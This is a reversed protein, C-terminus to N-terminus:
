GKHVTQSSELVNEGTRPRGEPRSFIAGVDSALERAGASGHRSRTVGWYRFGTRQADNISAKFGDYLVRRWQRGFHDDASPLAAVM